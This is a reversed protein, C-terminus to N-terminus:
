FLNILSSFKNEKRVSKMQVILYIFFSSKLVNLVKLTVIQEIILNQSKLKTLINLILTTASNLKSCTSCRLGIWDEPQVLIETWSEPKSLSKQEFGLFKYTVPETEEPEPQEVRPNPQRIQEVRSDPKFKQGFGLEVTLSNLIKSKLDAIFSEYTLMKLNNFVAWKFSWSTSSYRNRLHKWLDRSNWKAKLSFFKMQVNNICM